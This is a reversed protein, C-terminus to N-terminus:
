RGEVELTLHRPADTGQVLVGARAGNGTRPFSADTM